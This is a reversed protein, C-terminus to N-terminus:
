TLTSHLMETSRKGHATQPVGLMTSFPGDLFSGSLSDTPFSGSVPGTPLRKQAAVGLTEKTLLASFSDLLVVKPAKLIPKKTAAENDEHQCTQCTGALRAGFRSKTTIQPPHPNHVQM